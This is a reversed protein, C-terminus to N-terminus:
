RRAAYAPPQPTESNEGARLGAFFKLLIPACVDPIEEHPAHGSDLLELGANPMERSLRRGNEVPFLQDDRGWLIFTSSRVRRADALIPRTDLTSRLIALTAARAAPPAFSRYYFDLTESDIKPNVEERYLSSFLGQGVLQRFIFGGIMPALLARKATSAPHPHTLPAILGVRRTAEAHTAAIRLAVAGGIGHGLLHARALGLGSLLDIVADAFTSIGYSFRRPSPQESEGFGPFDFAIVRFREALRSALLDFSQRPTLAGPIIVISEVGPKATAAVWETTRLRIGRAGVDRQIELIEPQFSM